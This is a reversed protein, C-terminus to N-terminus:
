EEAAPTPPRQGRAARRGARRRGAGRGRGRGRGPAPPPRGGRRRGAGRGRGRAPPVLAVIADQEKIRLSVKEYVRFMFYPDEKVETRQLFEFSVDAAVVLEIPAGGRAVVVGYGNLLASSRLLPGGGLFPLIRDQPVYSPSARVLINLPTQAISFLDQSLVVAFPGFHGQNELDSIAETIGTVLDNGNTVTKRDNPTLTPTAVDNSAILLGNARGGWMREGVGAAGNPLPPADDDGDPDYGYYGSFVLADELRGIVNAARRFLTLVSRMEPDALQEGRVRVKFQLTALQTTDKDAISLPNYSVVETRAFDASAPLPGYLPLFTAAVRARQAEEQIVQNVRAWQEDTWPVQPNNQTM